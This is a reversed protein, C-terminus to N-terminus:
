ATISFVLTKGTGAKAQVLLDLGVLSIPLAKLQIPSPRTFGGNKLSELTQESIPLTDFTVDENIEVDDTHVRTDAM